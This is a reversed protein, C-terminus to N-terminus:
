HRHSVVHHGGAIMNKFEESHCFESHSGHYVLRQNLCAVQTIHTNVIGIDHTVLVITMGARKNLINLIEYFHEQMDRDVGTTPEDLFLIQPQNVVARAIFVRQQEGGSLSGIRRNEYAEMGVQKLAHHISAEEETGTMQFFKKTSLLAMAVVERVSAPFLPDFHTAKQPIYGIKQWETFEDIPKGMISVSGESSKLLGLMIKLLTTKGSGNPGLVALFDGTRISLSVNLIVPEHAYSYSVNKVEILIRPNVAASDM